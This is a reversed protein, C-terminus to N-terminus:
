HLQGGFRPADRADAVAAAAAALHVGQGDVAQQPRKVRGDQGRPRSASGRSRGRCASTPTTNGPRAAGALRRQRALRRVGVVHQGVLDDDDPAAVVASARARCAREPAVERAAADRHAAPRQARQREQSLRRAVGHRHRRDDRGIRRQAQEAAEQREGGIARGDLAVQRDRDPQAFLHPRDLRAQGLVNRGGLDEALERRVEARLHRALHRGSDARSIIESNRDNRRLCLVYANLGFPELM